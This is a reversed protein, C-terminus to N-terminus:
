HPHLPLCHANTRSLCVALRTQVGFCNRAALLSRRFVNSKELDFFCWHHRYFQDTVSPRNASQVKCFVQRTAVILTMGTGCLIAGIVLLTFTFVSNTLSLPAIIQLVIAALLPTGFVVEGIQWWCNHAADTSM